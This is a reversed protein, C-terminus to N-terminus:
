GGIMVNSGAPRLDGRDDLLRREIHAQHANNDRGHFRWDYTNIVWIIVCM